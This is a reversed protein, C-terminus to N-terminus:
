WRSLTASWASAVASKQTSNNGLQGYDNSGWAVVTGDSCLALSHLYGCSVGTITKGFLVGESDVLGPMLRHTVVLTSKPYNEITLYEVIDFQPLFQQSESM